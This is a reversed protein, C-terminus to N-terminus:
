QKEGQPNISERFRPGFARVAAWRTWATWWGIGNARMADYFVAAATRSSCPYPATCLWDHVVSAERSKAAYPPTLRWFFRPVSMGNFVAGTPVQWEAGVSDVFIVPELLRGDRSHRSWSANVITDTPPIPERTHPNLFVGFQRNKTSHSM